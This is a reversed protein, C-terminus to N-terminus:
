VNAWQIIPRKPKDMPFKGMPFKAIPCKNM